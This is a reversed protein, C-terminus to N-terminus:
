EDYPDILAGSAVDRREQRILTMRLDWDPPNRDFQMSEALSKGHALQVHGFRASRVIKGEAALALDVHLAVIIM